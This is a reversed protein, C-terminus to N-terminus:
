WAWAWLERGPGTALTLLAAVPAAGLVGDLRDFAGGHGPLLSSTDKVRFHRKIGSELLDGAQSAIGVLAASVLPAVLGAPALVASLALGALMASVLGGAAGSWTKAPSIAPALKPGGLARGLAYAGVDSAWVVLFLFLVSAQGAADDGRLLILSLGGIGIYLVGAALWAAPGDRGGAARALAWVVCFGAALVAFGAVFWGLAGLTGAVLVTAPVAAGARSRIRGGNLHVWEWSLLAAGLALLAAFAEPGLWIAALVLAAYGVGTVVRQPLDRWRTPDAPASAM